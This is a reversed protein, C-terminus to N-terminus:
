TKVNAVLVSFNATSSAISWSDATSAVQQASFVITASTNAAIKPYSASSGSPPGSRLILKQNPVGAIGYDVAVQNGSTTTINASLNVQTNATGIVTCGGSCIPYYPFPQAPISVSALTQAGTSSTSISNISSAWYLPTFPLQTYTFNGTFADWVVTAFDSVAGTLDNAEALLFAGVSGPEGSNVWLNLDYVSPQGPGGPSIMTWTAAPSPLADGFPVQTLNVNRLQPSQGPLGDLLAPLTGLGGSPTFTFTAVGSTPDFANNVTVTCNPITISNGDVTIAM